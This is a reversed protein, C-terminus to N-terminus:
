GAKRRLDSASLNLIKPEAFFREGRCQICSLEDCEDAALQKKNYALYQAPFALREVLRVKARAWEAWRRATFQACGPM